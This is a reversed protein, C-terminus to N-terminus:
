DRVEQHIGDEVWAKLTATVEDMGFEAAALVETIWPDPEGTRIFELEVQKIPNQATSEPFPLALPLLASLSDHLVSTMGKGSQPSVCLVRCTRTLFRMTRDTPRPGLLVLTLPRTSGVVDLARSLGDVQRRLVVEDPQDIRDEVVVLESSTGTGM